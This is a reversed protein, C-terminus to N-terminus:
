CWGASAMLMGRRRPTRTMATTLSFLWACWDSCAIMQDLPASPYFYTASSAFARFRGLDSHNHILGLRSASERTVAIAASALPNEITRQCPLYLDSLGSRSKSAATMTSAIKESM